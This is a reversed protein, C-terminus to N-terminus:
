SNLYTALNDESLRGSPLAAQKKRSQRSEKSETPLAAAEGVQAPPPTKAAAKPKGKSKAKLAKVGEVLVGAVYNGNPLTDLISKYAPGERFQLYMEYDAGDAEKVYPFTKLTDQEWQQKEQLFAARAPIRESLYEDAETLINRIQDDDFEQGEVEVYSKGLNALGWKRAALAEKRLAELEQITKVNELAPKQTEAKPEASNSKLEQIEEKLSEVTEQSSRWKATLTNIRKLAKSLGKPPNDESEDDEDEESEDLEESDDEDDSKDQSLVAVPDEETAVEEPETGEDSDTSPEETQNEEVKEMFSAALDEVSLVANHDTEAGSIEAPAESNPTEQTM